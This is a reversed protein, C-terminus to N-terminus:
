EVRSPRYVALFPILLLTSIGLLRFHHFLDYNGRGIVDSGILPTFAILLICLIAFGIKQTLTKQEKWNVMQYYVLYSIAPIAFLFAYKQQHPFIMPIILLIYALARFEALNRQIKGFPAKLFYLTILILLLRSANTIQFTLEKSLNVFNRQQPLQGNTETLYVPVMGVLSQPNRDAEILHESNSPNITEWWGALLENNYDNGVFVAPLFLFAVASILTVFSAKFYGRYLLYPIIVLPLLKINTMLGLLIGGIIYKDKKIFELSELIAWLMLMTMQVMAINYLLFRISFVLVILSWILQEKETIKKLDFYKKCIVWSRYLMAGSMLLWLLQTIFWNFTFPVLMAAFLPSYYYKLDDKFYPPAYIDQQQIIKEAAHLYVDFDGGNSASKVSLITFVLILLAPLIYQKKM